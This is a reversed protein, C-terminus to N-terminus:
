NGFTYRNPAWQSKGGFTTRSVEMVIEKSLERLAKPDNRLLELIDVSFRGTDLRLSGNINLNLNEPISNQESKSRAIPGNPASATIIDNPKTEFAGYEPDLILDGVKNVKGTNYDVKFKGSKEIEYAMSAANDGGEFGNRKQLNLYFNGQEDFFGYDSNIFDENNYQGNGNTLDANQALDIAEEWIERREETNNQKKQYETLQPTSESVFGAIGEKLINLKDTISALANVMDKGQEAIEDTTGKLSVTAQKALSKGEEFAKTAAEANGLYGQLYFDRQKIFDDDQIKIRNAFEGLVQTYASEALDLKEGLVTADLQTTWDRIDKVYQPLDKDVGQSRITALQEESLTNVDQNTYKGSTKDWVGIQWKGTEKNFTAKSDILARDEKGFKNGLIEDLVKSKNKQRAQNMLSEKSQGTAASIAELRMQENINFETEGTKKNFHGFGSVMDNLNKMYQEPDAYANFLMGIPDSLLAANGGLVNLKASTQIVDEVNGTHMKGLISDMEDMNFRVKQAWLAMKAVGEVGGRFQYKQAQKLSKEMDAAFKKNSLGMKNAKDYMTLIMKNSSQIGTNFINMGASLRASLGDDGFLTDLAAMNEMDKDSLNVARGSGEIYSSQWKQADAMTKNYVALTKSTEFMGNKFQQLQDGSYGYQVGMANASKDVELTLNELAQALKETEALYKDAADVEAMSLESLANSAQTTVQTLTSETKNLEENIATREVERQAAGKAAESYAEGAASVGPIVKGVVGTVESVMGSSFETRVQKEEANLNALEANYNATMEKIEQTYNARSISEQIQAKKYAVANSRSTRLQAYASQNIGDTLSSLSNGFSSVLLDLKVDQFSSAIDKNLQITKLSTDRMFNMSAMQRKKDIVELKLEYDKIKNYIEVGKKAAAGLAELAVGWPGKAFKGLTRAAGAMKGGFAAVKANKSKSLATGYKNLKRIGSYESYKPDDPDKPNRGGTSSGGSPSPSGGRGGSSGNFANTAKNLAIILDRFDKQTPATAAM